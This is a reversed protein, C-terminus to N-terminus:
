IEQEVFKLERQIMSVLADCKDCMYYHTAHEGAKRNSVQLRRLFGNDMCNIHAIHHPLKTM